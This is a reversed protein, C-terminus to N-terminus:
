GFRGTALVEPDHSPLPTWGSKKLFDLSDRYADLDSFRGSPLSEDFNRYTDVCDGTIVFTGAATDVRVGQSGPSHGPLPVLGLGPALESAGDVTRIRDEALSFIPPNDEYFGYAPLHAACPEHAYALEKEQLIIEANEFVNNNSCHDWHLHTNVVLDVDAPNVGVRDLANHIRNAEPVEYGFPTMRLIVEEDAPGGTDVIVTRGAHRLVYMILPMNQMRGSTDQYYIHEVPIDPLLGLEVAEITWGTSDM